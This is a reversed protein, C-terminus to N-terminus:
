LLGCCELHRVAEQTIWAIQLPSYEEMLSTVIQDSGPFLFYEITKTVGRDFAEPERIAWIRVHLIDEDLKEVTCTALEHLPIAQALFPRLFEANEPSMFRLAKILRSNPKVMPQYEKRSYPCPSLAIESQVHGGLGVFREQLWLPRELFTCQLLELSHIIGFPYCHFARPVYYFRSCVFFASAEFLQLHALCQTQTCSVQCDKFPSHSFQLKLPSWPLPDRLRCLCSREELDTLKRGIQDSGLVQM